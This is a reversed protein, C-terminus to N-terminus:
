CFRLSLSSAAKRAITRALFPKDAAGDAVVDLRDSLLGNFDASTTTVTARLSPVASVSM